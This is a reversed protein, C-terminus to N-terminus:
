LEERKKLPVPKLKLFAPKLRRLALVFRKVALKLPHVEAVVGKFLHSPSMIMISPLLTLAGLGSCLMAITILYGFRKLPIFSGLILTLFGLSVTVMNIFIAKGTTDLTHALSSRIEKGVRYERRFRNLFHISYDIGIGMSISGILVTAVDLPIRALGMSGFLMFLTFGIPILGVLGGTMSRLLIINCLFVLLVAIILSKIQSKGLAEDLRQYIPISGALKFTCDPSNAGAIYTEVAQLLDNIERSNQSEVMAHIVAETKEGNVLQNLAEEGELLFWLNAM